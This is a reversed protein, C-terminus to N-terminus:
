PYVRPQVDSFGSGGIHVRVRGTGHAYEREGLQVIAAITEIVGPVVGSGLDFPPELSVLISRIRPDHARSDATLYSNSVSM